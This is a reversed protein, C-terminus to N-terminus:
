HRRKTRGSEEDDSEEEVRNEDCQHFALFRELFTNWDDTIPKPAGADLMDVDSVELHTIRIRGTGSEPHAYMQARYRVRRSRLYEMTAPDVRVPLPNPHEDVVLPATERFGFDRYKLSENPDRMWASIFLFKTPEINSLTNEIVLTNSM